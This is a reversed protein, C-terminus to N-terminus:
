EMERYYYISDRVHSDIWEKGTNGETGHWIIVDNGNDNHMKTVLVTIPITSSDETPDYINYIETAIEYNGENDYIDIDFLEIDKKYYNAVEPVERAQQACGACQSHVVIIVPKENIEDLVWQPHDVSAGDEPHQVPYNVWWDDDGSGVEYKPSYSRLWDDNQDVPPDNDPLTNDPANDDPDDNSTSTPTDKDYYVDFYLYYGGIIIISCIVTVFIIYRPHWRSTFGKIRSGNNKTKRKGPKRYDEKFEIELEKQHVKKGHTALNRSKLRVGCEPCESWEDDDFDISAPPGAKLKLQKKRGRKKKSRKSVAM